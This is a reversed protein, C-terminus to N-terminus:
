IHLNLLIYFVRDELCINVWYANKVSLSLLSVCFTFRLRIHFYLQGDESVPNM